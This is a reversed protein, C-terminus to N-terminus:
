SRRHQAVLVTSDDTSLGYQRRLRAACISSPYLAQKLELCSKLGDSSMVAASNASWSCEFEKITPSKFGLVGNMCIISQNKGDAVVNTAINGIGCGTITGAVPDIRAVAAAAGRTGQLSIHIRQLIESPAATAYNKFSEMAVRTTESAEHGHGLSDVVLLTLLEEDAMFSWGDGCETHGELAVSIGAVDFSKCLDLEERSRVSGQMPQNDRTELTGDQQGCIRMILITGGNPAENIKFDDALKKVTNLAGGMTDLAGEDISGANDNSNGYEISIIELVNIGECNTVGSILVESTGNGFKVLSTALETSVIEANSTKSEDFNLEVARKKVHNRLEGIKLKDSIAFRRHPEGVVVKM